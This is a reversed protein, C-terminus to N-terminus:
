GGARRLSSTQHRRRSLCHSCKRFFFCITSLKTDSHNSYQKCWLLIQWLKFSCKLLVQYSIAADNATSPLNVTTHHHCGTPSFKGSSHRAPQDVSMCAPIQNFQPNNSGSSPACAQRQSAVSINPQVPLTSPQPSFNAAYSSPVNPHSSNMNAQALSSSQQALQLNTFSAGLVEMLSM